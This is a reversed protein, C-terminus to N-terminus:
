VRGELKRYSVLRGQVFGVWPDGAMEMFQRNAVVESVVAIVSVTPSPFALLVPIM